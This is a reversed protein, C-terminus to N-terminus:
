KSDKGDYILKMVIVYSCLLVTVTNAAIVPMERILIGYVLWLIIGTLMILYMFLSLDKVHKTKAIKIIQPVFSVTTLAGAILGILGIHAREMKDKGLRSRHRRPRPRGSM